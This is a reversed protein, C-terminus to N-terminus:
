SVFAFAGVTADRLPGAARDLHSPLTRLQAQVKETIHYRDDYRRVTHNARLDGVAHQADRSLRGVQSGVSPVLVVGSGIVILACALDGALISWARPLRTRQVADVVPGLAMATFIAIALIRIVGRTLYLLYLTGACAAVITVLRIVGRLSPTGLQAVVRAPEADVEEIAMRVPDRARAPRALGFAPGPWVGRTYAGAISRSRGPDSRRKT